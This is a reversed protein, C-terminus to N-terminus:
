KGQNGAEGSSAGVTAAKLMEYLVEAAPQHNAPLLEIVKKGQELTANARQKAAARQDDRIKKFGRALGETKTIANDIETTYNALDFNEASTYFVLKRFLYSDVTQTDGMSIIDGDNMYAFWAQRAIALMTADHDMWTPKSSGEAEPKAGNGTNAASDRIELTLRAAEPKAGNGTNAAAQKKETTTVTTNNTTTTVKTGDEKTAVTVSTTGNTVENSNAPKEATAEKESPTKDKRGSLGYAFSEASELYSKKISDFAEENEEPMDIIPIKVEEGRLSDLAAKSIYAARMNYKKQFSGQGSVTMRYFNRFVKGTIPDPPTRVEFYQAQTFHACGSLGLLVVGLALWGAMRISGESAGNERLLGPKKVMYWEGQTKINWFDARFSVAPFPLVVGRYQPVVSHFFMLSCVVTSSETSGADLSDGREFFLLILSIIVKDIILEKVLLAAAMILLFIYMYEYIFCVVRFAGIARGGGLTIYDPPYRFLASGPQKGRRMWPFIIPRRSM